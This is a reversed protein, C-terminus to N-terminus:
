AWVKEELKKCTQYSPVTSQNLYMMLISKMLERKLRQPRFFLAINKKDDNM